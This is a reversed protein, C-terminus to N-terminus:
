TSLVSANSSNAPRRARFNGANNKKKQYEFFIKEQILICIVAMLALQHRGGSGNKSRNTLVDRFNRSSKRKCASIKIEANIHPLIDWLTMTQAFNSILHSRESIQLDFVWPVASFSKCLIRKKRYLMSCVIWSCYCFVSVIVFSSPLLSMIDPKCEWRPYEGLSELFQLHSSTRVFISMWERTRSSCSLYLERFDHSLWFSAWNWEDVNKM